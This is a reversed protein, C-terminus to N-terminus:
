SAFVEIRNRGKQKARYLAQDAHDIFDEFPQGLYPAIGFSATINGLARDSNRPKVRVRELRKRVMETTEAAEGITTSSMILAFEEGGYRAGFVSDSSVERIVEAMVKLVMDGTVHGYSDNFSKFHDLDALVLCVRGAECEDALLRALMRDFGHRNNVQTLQDVYAQQEAQELKGRLDSIEDNARQMDAQFAQNADRLMHSANVVQDIIATIEDMSGAQELQRINDGLQRDFNASGQLSQGLRSIIHSAVRMISKLTDNHAELYDSVIFSDFLENGKESSIRGEASVINDLERTLLPKHNAVYNYWLTYDIPNTPLEKEVM